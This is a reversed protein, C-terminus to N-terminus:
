AGGRYQVARCSVAAAAASGAGVLLWHKIPLSRAFNAWGAADSVQAPGVAISPATFWGVAGAAAVVCPVSAVGALRASEEQKKPVPMIMKCVGFCLEFCRLRVHHTLSAIEAAFKLHHRTHARLLRVRVLRGGLVRQRRGARSDLGQSGSVGSRRRRRIPSGHNNLSSGFIPGRTCTRKPRLETRQIRTM